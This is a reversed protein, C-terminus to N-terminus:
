DFFFPSEFNSLTYFMELSSNTSRFNLFISVLNFKEEYHKIISFAREACLNNTRLDLNGSSEDLKYELLKSNLSKVTKFFLFAKDSDNELSERFSEFNKGEEVLNFTKLTLQFLDKVDIFNSNQDALLIQETSQDFAELEKFKALLIEAKTDKAFIKWLKEIIAKCVLLISMKKNFCDDETILRLIIKGNSSITAHNQLFTRFKQNNEAIVTFNSIDCGWRIGRRYHFTYKSESTDSGTMFREWDRNLSGKSNVNGLTTSLKDALAILGLSRLLVGELLASSHAQCAIEHIKPSDPFNEAYKQIFAKKTSKAANCSDSMIGMLLSSLNNHKQILEKVISLLFDALQVSKMGKDKSFDKPGLFLILDRDVDSVGVVLLKTALRSPSEDFWLCLPSSYNELVRKNNAENLGKIMGRLRLFFKREPIGCELEQVNAAIIQLIVRTKNPSLSAELLFLLSIRILSEPYRIIFGQRSKKSYFFERFSEHYDTQSSITNSDVSEQSVHNSIDQDVHENFDEEVQLFQSIRTTADEKSRRPKKIPSPSLPLIVEPKSFSIIFFNQKEKGIPKKKGLKILNELIHFKRTSTEHFNKM